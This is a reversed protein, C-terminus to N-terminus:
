VRLTSRKRGEKEPTVNTVLGHTGYWVDGVTENVIFADGTQDCSLVVLTAGRSTDVKLRLVEIDCDLFFTSYRTLAQVSRLTSTSLLLSSIM